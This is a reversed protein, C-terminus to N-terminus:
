GENQLPSDKRTLRVEGVTDWVAVQPPRTDVPLPSPRVVITCANVIRHVTHVPVGDQSTTVGANLFYTDPKMTCVFHFEVRLKAGAAIAPLTEGQYDTGHSEVEDGARNRFLCWFSVNALAATFQVDYRYVYRRGYSLVNVRQGDPTEVHPDVIQAGRTPYQEVVRCALHPILYDRHELSPDVWPSLAAPFSQEEDYALARLQKREDALRLLYGSANKTLIQPQEALPWDDTYGFEAMFEAFRPRFYDVDEPLFWNRWEGYGKSRAVRAYQPAVESVAALPFGLYQQLADFNRDVIDEYRIRFVGAGHRRSVNVAFRLGQLYTEVLRLAPVRMGALRQQIRFLELISISRPAQEKARLTSAFQACSLFDSTVPLNYSVYLLYSLLMDRPDRHIFVRRDFYSCVEPGYHDYGLIPQFLVKAVVNKDALQSSEEPRCSAPEFLGVTEGPLSEKLIQFLITTGSKPQALILIKTM